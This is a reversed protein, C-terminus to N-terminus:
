VCTASWSAMIEVPKEEREDEDHVMFIEKTKNKVSTAKGHPLVSRVAETIEAYKLSGRLANRDIGHGRSEPGHSVKEFADM